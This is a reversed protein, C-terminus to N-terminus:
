QLTARSAFAVSGGSTTSRGHREVKVHSLTFAGTCRAFLSLSRPAIGFRLGVGVWFRRVNSIWRWDSVSGVRLPHSTPTWGLPFEDSGSSFAGILTWWVVSHCVAGFCLVAGEQPWTARGSGLITRMTWCGTSRWCTCRASTREARSNRRQQRTVATTIFRARSRCLVLFFAHSPPCCALYSATQNM